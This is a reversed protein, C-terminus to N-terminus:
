INKRRVVTIVTGLTDKTDVAGYVRSDAAGERADALVFVEEKGVTLPFAIGEVYRETKEYIGPEQQIAGNVILGDETIDVTDGATAVVRRAQKKGQFTLLLVDGAKYDKDLRYFVTLDESGIAPAMGPDTGRHFGYIFSFVAAGIAVIVVIKILLSLLERRLAPGARGPPAGGSETM